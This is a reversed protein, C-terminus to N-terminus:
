VKAVERTAAASVRRVEVTDDSKIGVVVVDEGTKLPEDGDTVAQYEVIRNQMSLQVKGAGRGIAPIPVYVTAPQGLANAIQENGESDFRVILGLLWYMGYMACTGAVLALVLTTTAPFGASLTSFGTIGFFAAAAVLTKFSVVAFLHTSDPHQQDSGPHSSDAGHGHFGGGAHTDGVGHFDGAHHAFDGGDHGLGFLALVFQCVLITGGLVAAILYIWSLLMLHDGLAIGVLGARAGDM